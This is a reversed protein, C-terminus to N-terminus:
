DLHIELGTVIEHFIIYKERLNALILLKKNKKDLVSPFIHNLLNCTSVNKRGIGISPLLDFNCKHKENSLKFKM